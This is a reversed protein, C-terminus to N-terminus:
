TERDINLKNLTNVRVNRCTCVGEVGSRHDVEQVDCAYGQVELSVADIGLPNKYMLIGKAGFGSMVLGATRTYGRRFLEIRKANAMVKRVLKSAYMLVIQRDIMM